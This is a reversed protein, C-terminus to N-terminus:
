TPRIFVNFPLSSAAISTIQDCMDSWHTKLEIYNEYGEILGLAREHVRKLAGGHHSAPVADPFEKRLDNLFAKGADVVADFDPIHQASLRASQHIDHLAAACALRALYEPGKMPQGYGRRDVFMGDEGSTNIYSREIVEFFADDSAWVPLFGPFAIAPPGIRPHMALCAGGTIQNLPDVGIRNKVIEHFRARNVGELDRLAVRRNQESPKGYCGSVVSYQNEAQDLFALHKALVDIFPPSSMPATGADIRVIVPAEAVLALVLLRNFGGGYSFIDKGTYFLRPLQPPWVTQWVEDCQKDWLFVRGWGDGECGEIFRKLPPEHRTLDDTQIGLVHEKGAVQAFAAATREAQDINGQSVMMGFMIKPWQDADQTKQYAQQNM